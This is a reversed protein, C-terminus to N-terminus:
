MKEMMFHCVKVGCDGDISANIKSFAAIQKERDFGAGTINGDLFDKLSNFANESCCYQMWQSVQAFGAEHLCLEEKKFVAEVETCEGTMVNIDYIKRNTHNYYRFVTDGIPYLFYGNSWVNFYGNDCKTQMPIPLKLEQPSKKEMDLEVMKNGWYPPLIIKKGFVAPLGFPRQNCKMGSPRQICELGEVMADYKEIKGTYADLCGIVTGEYPMLWLKDQESKIQLIGGAFDIEVIKVELTAADVMLLKKGDAFGIVLKDKWNTLGGIRKEGAITKTYIERIGSMYHLEETRMNLRVMFPYKNPLIFLYEGIQWAASFAGRQETHKNLEIKKISKDKSVVLIDQANQPCVYVKDEFEIARSYYNGGSYECLDCFYEYHFDDDPSYYLQNGQTVYWRNHGDAYFGKIMEGKWDNEDPLAHINNNLIFMPKGVVGFLSTVSTGSEGIYADCLAITSEIDPTTDLIGINEEVFRRKLAEYIPKYQVRMSDFTSEILPHPRWLLCVDERGQFTNFVYEMKKLFKETNQLMGAISTNYFYVKKGQMKEKWEEPPQPPNQCKRIVSDFKPSGFALFKNDPIRADYYKRYKESQIVIYDANIYGPCLAQGESMGGATAFYPIYVLCDTYKKLNESFFFPHVSTVTNWDDYPNHIFIVDPRRKEFDYGDFRTIPVDAPYQNGEWHEKKFSRDPNKDYYPIPIVYADCNEDADAAEWVSEFSDWMSAKYPLFVMELRVPIDNKISSEIQILYKRLVKYVKNANAKQETELEEFYQYARECYEEIYGVTVFGEGETEEISNGLQIMGQQCETLLNKAYTLEGNEIAKKIKEHTQHLIQVIDLALQKGQKRMYEGKLQFLSHAFCMRAGLATAQLM